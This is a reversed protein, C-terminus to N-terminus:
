APLCLHRLLEDSDNGGHDRAAILKEDTLPRELLSMTPQPLKGAPLALRSLGISVRRAPLQAFLEADLHGIYAVLLERDSVRARREEDDEHRHPNSPFWHAMLM